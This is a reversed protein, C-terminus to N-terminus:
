IGPGRLSSIFVVGASPSTVAMITYWDGATFVKGSKIKEREREKEKGRVPKM